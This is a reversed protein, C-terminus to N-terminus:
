KLLARRADVLALHTQQMLLKFFFNLEGFFMKGVHRCYLIPKGQVLAISAECEPSITQSTISQVVMFDFAKVSFFCYQQSCMRKIFKTFINMNEDM